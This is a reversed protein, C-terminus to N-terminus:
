GWPKHLTEVRRVKELITVKSNIHKGSELLNSGAIRLWRSRGLASLLRTKTTAVAGRKLEYGDWQSRSVVIIILSRRARNNIGRMSADEGRDGKQLGALRTAPGVYRKEGRIKSQDKGPSRSIFSAVYM